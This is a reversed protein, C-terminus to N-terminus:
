KLYSSRLKIGWRGQEYTLVYLSEATIIESGDARLRRFRTAVHVKTDSMGIIDRDIWVSRHWGSERLRPFIQEHAKIADDRTQWSNMAGNALRFHPFHYTATHAKPDSASFSVMFADLVAIVEKRVTDKGEAGSASSIFGFSCLILIVRTIQTKITPKM